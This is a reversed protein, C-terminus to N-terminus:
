CIEHNSNTWLTTRPQRKSKVQEQKGPKKYFSVTIILLHHSIAYKKIAFPVYEQPHVGFCGQWFRAGMDGVFGPLVSYTDGVQIDQHPGAVPRLPRLRGNGCCGSDFRNEWREVGPESSLLHSLVHKNVTFM